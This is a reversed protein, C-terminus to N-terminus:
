RIGGGEKVITSTKAEKCHVVTREDSPTILYSCTSLSWMREKPAEGLVVASAAARESVYRQFQADGEFRTSLVDAQSANPVVEVAFAELTAKETRTQVLVTRHDEAYGQDAFNALEAFVPTDANSINHGQIVANRSGMLGGEACDADLFPCGLPNWNRYADHSNYYAPDDAPAQCVPLSISTGPVQVWGVVDPNVSEWYDWDVAAFGDETLQEGGGDPAPSPSAGKELASLALMAALGAALLGLGLTVLVLPMLPKKPKPEEFLAM